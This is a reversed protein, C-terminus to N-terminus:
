YPPSTIRWRLQPTIIKQDPAAVWRVVGGFLNLGLNLAQEEGHKFVEIWAPVSHDAMGAIYIEDVAALPLLTKPTNVEYYHEFVALQAPLASAGATLCALGKVFDRRNM